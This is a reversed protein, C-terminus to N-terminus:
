LLEDVTLFWETSIGLLHDSALLSYIILLDDRTIDKSKMM